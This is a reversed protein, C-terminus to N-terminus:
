VFATGLYGFFFFYTLVSNGKTVKKVLVLPFFAWICEPTQQPKSVPGV